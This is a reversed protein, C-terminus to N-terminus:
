EGSEEETSSGVALELARIRAEQEEQIHDQVSILFALLQDLRFGYADGEERTCKKEGTDYREVETYEEEVEMQAPNGAADFLTESTVMVKRTLTVEREAWIAEYEADWKDYCLFAYLAKGEGSPGVLGEEHMIDWVAQARAGFHFRAVGDTGEKAAIASLWQYFGLEKIICKGARLEAQTLRGRWLKQRADSTNITGTAAYVVAIRAGSTGMSYTNDTAPYFNGAATIGWRYNGSTGFILDGSMENILQLNDNASGYGIYAKRGTPDAIGIYAAGSGRATTTEFRAIEATSKVHLRTTANVSGIGVHGSQNISFRSAAGTLDAIDFVNTAWAGSRISWNRVGTELLNIAASGGMGAVELKAGPTTTGIGLYGSPNIRAAEVPGSSGVLFRISCTTNTRPAILLDGATGIGSNGTAIFGRVQGAPLANIQGYIELGLNATDSITGIALTATGQASLAEFTGGSTRRGLVHAGAVEAGAGGATRVLFNDTEKLHDQDTYTAWDQETAM